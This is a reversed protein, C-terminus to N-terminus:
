FCVDVNQQESGNKYSLQVCNHLLILHNKKMVAAAGAM